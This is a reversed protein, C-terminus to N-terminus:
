VGSNARIMGPISTVTMAPKRCISSTHGTTTTLPTDKAPVCNRTELRSPGSSASRRAARAATIVTM